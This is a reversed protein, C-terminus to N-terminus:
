SIPKSRAEAATPVFVLSRLRQLITTPQFFTCLSFFRIPAMDKSRCRLRASAKTAGNSIALIIRRLRFSSLCITCELEYDMRDVPHWSHQGCAPCQVRVGLNFIKSKTYREILGDVDPPGFISNAIKNM